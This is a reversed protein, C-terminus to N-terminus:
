QHIKRVLGNRAERLLRIVDELGERDLHKAFGLCDDIQEELVAFGAGTKQAPRAAPAAGANAAGAQEGDKRTELGRRMLSKLNSLGNRVREPITTENPHDHLWRQYLEANSREELLKPNERLIPRFYGMVSEGQEDANKAM